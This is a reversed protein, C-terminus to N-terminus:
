YSFLTGFRLKFQAYDLTNVTGNGDFDFDANYGAAGSSSGFANKFRAYDLTNVTKNGDSDGFLRHFTFVADANQAFTGGGADRVAAAGATLDYVGDPLSNFQLAAPDFSLVYTQGDGSPNAATVGSTTGTPSGRRALTFAAPDLTVQRHFTVTLGTVRSRGASGDDV